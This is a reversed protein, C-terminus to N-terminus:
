GRSFADNELRDHRGPCTLGEPGDVRRNGRAAAASRDLARSRAPGRRDLARGGGGSRGPDRRPDSRAGASGPSPHGSLRACPPRRLARAPEGRRPGSLRRRLDRRRLGGSGTTPCRSDPTAVNMARSGRSPWSVSTRTPGRDVEQAAEEDGEAGRLCAPRDSRGAAERDRAGCAGRYEPHRPVQSGSLDAQRARCSGRHRGSGRLLVARARGEGVPCRRRRERRFRRGRASDLLDLAVILRERATSPLAPREDEEPLGM